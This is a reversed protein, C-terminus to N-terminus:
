GKAIVVYDCLPLLAHEPCVSVSPDAGAKNHTSDNIM